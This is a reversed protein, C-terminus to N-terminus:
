DDEGPQNGDGRDEAALEWTRDIADAETDERGMADADQLSDQDDHEGVGYLWGEGPDGPRTGSWVAWGEPPAGPEADVMFVLEPDAAATAIMDHVAAMDEASTEAAVMARLAVGEPWHIRLVGPVARVRDAIETRRKQDVAETDRAARLGDLETQMDAIQRRLMANEGTLSSLEAQAPELAENAKGADDRYHDADIRWRDAQALVEQLLQVTSRAPDPTRGQWEEIMSRM